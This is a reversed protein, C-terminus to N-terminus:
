GEWIGLGCFAKCFFRKSVERRGVSDLRAEVRGMGEKIFGISMSSRLLHGMTKKWLSGWEMFIGEQILLIFFEQTQPCAGFLGPLIICIEMHMM